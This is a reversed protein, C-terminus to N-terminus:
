KVKISKTKSPSAYVEACAENESIAVVKYYYKKKSKLGKDKYTTKTTIGVCQYTGKKKTSRYIKYSKAGNVKKFKLTVSKKGAKLSKIVVKNPELVSTYTITAIKKCGISTAIKEKTALGENGDFYQVFKWLPKTGIERGTESGPIAAYVKQDNNYHETPNTAINVESNKYNYDEITKEQAMIAVVYYQYTVGEKPGIKNYNLENKEVINSYIMYQNKYVGSRKRDADISESDGYIEGAYDLMTTNTFKHQKYEYNRYYYEKETDLMYYPNIRGTTRGTKEKLFAATKENWSTVDVRVPEKVGVYEYLLQGGDIMYCGTDKNKPVAGAKVRYVQYYSAGPVPTWSVRIGQNEKVATVKSVPSLGANIRVSKYEASLTNGGNRYAYIRYQDITKWYTHTVGRKDVYSKKEVLPPNLTVKTTNKGLRSVEIYEVQFRNQDPKYTEVAKKIIYGEAGVVKSWELKKRGSSDIYEHTIKPAGFQLSVMKSEEVVVKQNGSLKAVVKYTYITNKETKKDTYSKSKKRLTKILEYSRFENQNGKYIETFNSDAVKRYIEYNIANPVKKWSLKVKNQNTVNATLHLASGSTTLNLKKYEGYHITQNSRNYFYPRIKYSYKTKSLLGKDVYINKAIKAVRKYKNDIKRYIEYGTVKDEGMRFEISTSQISVKVDAEKKVEISLSNSVKMFAYKSLDIGHNKCYVEFSCRRNTKIYEMYAQDAQERAKSQAVRDYVYAEIIKKGMSFSHNSLNIIHNMSNYAYKSSSFELNGDENKIWIGTESNMKDDSYVNLYIIADEPVNGMKLKWNTIIQNTQYTNELSLTPIGASGINKIENEKAESCVPFYFVVMITFIYILLNKLGSNKQM